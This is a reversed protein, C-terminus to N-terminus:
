DRLLRNLDIGNPDIGGLHAASEIEAAHDEVREEAFARESPSMQSLEVARELADAEGRGTVRTWFARLVHNM